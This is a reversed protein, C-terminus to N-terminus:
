RVRRAHADVRQWRKSKSAAGLAVNTALHRTARHPDAAKPLLLGSEEEITLAMKTDDSENLAM